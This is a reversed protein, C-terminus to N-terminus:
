GGKGIEAAKKLVKDPCFNFSSYHEASEDTLM